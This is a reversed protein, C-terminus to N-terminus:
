LDSCLSGSARFSKTLPAPSSSSEAYCGVGIFAVDNARDDRLRVSLIYKVLPSEVMTRTLIGCDLPRQIVKEPEKKKKMGPQLAKSVDVTRTVWGGNEFVSTHFSM